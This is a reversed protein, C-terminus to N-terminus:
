IFYKYYMLIIPSVFALSDFRDLIGGHGRLLNSSDKIQAERKLLSESFDGLQGCIGIILGICMVDWFSIILPFYDFCYMSVMFIMTIILGMVTGVWTKNPSVKPLIKKKGFKKGFLFASTDCIWVGLFMFLTLTFGISDINRLVSLSGLMLGLWVFAFLVSFINVMSTKQKRFVEIIMSLLTILVLLDYNSMFSDFYPLRNTQLIFIFIMLLPLFPKGKMREVLIPVEISGLLLVILVFISFIPFNYTNDGLVIISLLSPVGIINVLVRSSKTESM